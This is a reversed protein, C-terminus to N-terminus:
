DEERAAFHPRDRLLTYHIPGGSANFHPRNTTLSLEVGERTLVYGSGESFPPWLGVIRNLKM